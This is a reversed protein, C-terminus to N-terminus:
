KECLARYHRKNLVSWAVSASLLFARPSCVLLSLHPTLTVPCCRIRFHFIVSMFGRALLRAAARRNTPGFRQGRAQCGRRGCADGLMLRGSRCRKKISRMAASLRCQREGGGGGGRVCLPMRRAGSWYSQVGIFAAAKKKIGEGKKGEKKRQRAQKLPSLLLHTDHDDM